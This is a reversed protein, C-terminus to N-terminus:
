MEQCHNVSLLTCLRLRSRDKNTDSTSTTCWQIIFCLYTSNNRRM